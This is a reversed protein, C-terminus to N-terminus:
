DCGLEIEIDVIKRDIANVYGPLDKVDIKGLGLEGGVSIYLLERQERTFGIVDDQSWKKQEMYSRSQSFRRREEGKFTAYSEVYLQAYQKIRAEAEALSLGHEAESRGLECGGKIPIDAASSITSVLILVILLKLRM